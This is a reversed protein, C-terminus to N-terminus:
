VMAFGVPLVKRRKGIIGSKPCAYVVSCYLSGGVKEICGVTIFVGTDAAIRELAERTGDGRPGDGNGLKRKVWREGGGAGDGVEDGLDVAQNWYELFEDRGEASRKGIECGFASGRPYGGLFAEPLLLIDVDLSSAKQAMSALADLTLKTSAQAPPSATGLRLKAAPM